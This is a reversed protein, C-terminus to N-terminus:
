PPPIHVWFFLPAAHQAGAFGIQDIQRRGGAVAGAGAEAAAGTIAVAAVAGAGAVVVAAPRRPRAATVGVLTARGSSPPGIMAAPRSVGSPSAHGLSTPRGILIIRTTRGRGSTPGIPVIRIIPITRVIPTTRGLGSM